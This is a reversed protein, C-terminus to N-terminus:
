AAANARIASIANNFAQTTLSAGGIRSPSFSSIPQGVSATNISGKFSDIYMGSEQDTYSNNTSISAIKDNLLSLIVAISNTSGHPVSYSITSSYNGDKYALSTSTTSSSSSTTTQPGVTSSSSPSTNTSQVQSSNSNTNQTATNVSLTSYGILGATAALAIAGISIFLKDKRNM